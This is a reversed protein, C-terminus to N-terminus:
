ALMNAKLCQSSEDTTASVPFKMLFDDGLIAFYNKNARLSKFLSFDDLIFDLASTNKIMQPEYVTFSLTGSSFLGGVGALLIIQDHNPM